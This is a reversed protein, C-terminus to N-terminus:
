RPPCEEILLTKKHRDPEWGMNSILSAPFGAALLHCFSIQKDEVNGSDFSLFAKHDIINKKKQNFISNVKKVLAFM